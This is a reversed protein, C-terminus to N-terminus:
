RPRLLSALPGKPNDRRLKALNLSGSNVALSDLKAFTAGAAISVTAANTTLAPAAALDLTATGGVNWTGGSLTSGTVQSLSTANITTTGGNV